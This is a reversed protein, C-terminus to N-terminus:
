RSPPIFAKAHDDPVLPAKQRRAPPAPPVDPGKIGPAVESPAGDGAEIAPQPAAQAAPLSPRPAIDPKPAASAPSTGFVRYAAIALLAAILVIMGWRIGRLVDERVVPVNSKAGM